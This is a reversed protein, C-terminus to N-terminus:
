AHVEDMLVISVFVLLFDLLHSVERVKSRIRDDQVTLPELDGLVIKLMTLGAGWVDYAAPRWFEGKMRERRGEKDGKSEEQGKDRDRGRNSEGTKRGKEGAMKTSVAGKGEVGINETEERTDGGERRTSSDRAKVGGLEGNMQRPAENRSQRSQARTRSDKEKRFFLSLPPFSAFTEPPQYGRTEQDASPEGPAM